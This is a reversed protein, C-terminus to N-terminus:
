VTNLGVTNAFKNVDEIDENGLINMFNNKEFSGKIQASFNEM